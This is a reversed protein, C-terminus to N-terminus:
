PTSTSTSGSELQDLLNRAIQRGWTSLRWDRLLSELISRAEEKEGRDLALEAEVLGVEHMHPHEEKLRQLISHTMTLEGQFLAHRARCLDAIGPTLRDEPLFILLDGTEPLSAAMYMAQNMKNQLDVPIPSPLRQVALIYMGAAQLWAQREV